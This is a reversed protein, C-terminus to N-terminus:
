QRDAPFIFNQPQNQVKQILIVTTTTSSRSPLGDRKYYPDHMAVEVSLLKVQNGKNEMRDRDKRNQREKVM